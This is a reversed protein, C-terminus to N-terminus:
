SGVDVVKDLFGLVGLLQRLLEDEVHLILEELDFRLDGDGNGVLVKQSLLELLMLFGHGM